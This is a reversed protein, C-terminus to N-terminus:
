QSAVSATPAREIYINQGKIEAGVCGIELQWSNHKKVEDISCGSQGSM